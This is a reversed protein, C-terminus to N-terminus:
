TGFMDVQEVARKLTDFKESRKSMNYVEKLFWVEKQLRLIWKEVRVIKRELTEDFLDMQKM